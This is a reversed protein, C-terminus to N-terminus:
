NNATYSLAWGLAPRVVTARCSLSLFRYISVEAVIGDTRPAALRPITLGQTLGDM